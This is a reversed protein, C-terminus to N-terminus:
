KIKLRQSSDLVSALINQIAKQADDILAYFVPVALLTFFTATTMGGIIMFGFSEFSRGMAESSALTLPIMGFITTFATMVIPRFRHRTALLLAENRDMGGARLRNAYDVLVIGNNVVLGMLLIGGVIGMDDIGTGTYFHLWISGIAALPITLIISLPMLISEFLFAILMYIFIISLGMAILSTSIEDDDFTVKMESFSVGEPLDINRQAEYIARRAESEEGSELKMSIYYSIKKDSRQIHTESNLMAPKTIAGISSYRGDDSRVRYNNIDDLEARDEESFRMRVPIQRGNGSFDALSRGRLASSVVGAVAEPSIGMSSARDRNVMLAMENPGEDSDKDEVSLVGPLDAFAPKLMEGVEELQRPDDGVLRLHHRSKQDNRKEGGTDMGSYYVRVGPIEPFMKYLRDPVEDKPINGLGGEDSYNAEFEARTHKDFEVRYSSIGFQLKNTEVINEVEQFYADKQAITFHEPFRVRMHFEDRDDDRYGVVEIKKFGYFYTASLLVILIFALDLRRNLYFKLARNYLANFQEFTLKYFFLLGKKILAMVIHPGRLGRSIFTEDDSGSGATLYVCLPIFIIAMGLSALLASVVPLALQYLMFRMEGGVLLSPLFVIITTLTATTIALGIEGVGKICAARRSLGSQLHRNINEAVVVSNDVLLGVCIVLGLISTMNLTDGAFYMVTMSIFLALPIGLAIILTLRFQRLFFFLVFGAMIAGYLGNNTLSNLQRKIIEGYNQYLYLEYQALKPNKSIEDIAAAVKSGVEVTNAESEKVVEVRASRMKNWRETRQYTDDVEYKITAVDRLYVSDSLPINGLDQMSHFTSSSKLLYKKGGDTVTGSSLTFNDGRLRQSLRNISLGYAEARDKDLEIIIEKRYIRVNVDAVGDIRQLPRVIHKEVNNYLDTDDTYRVSMRCVSSSSGGYKYIRYDDVGDPFRLSAREMRDRVERYAVDMDTDRKFRLSVESSTQSARTDISEIGRVTSLEEEMPLGIKEMAEEPVGSSWGTRIRMYNGERGKPYKELPLRNVAIFGIALITLFLVFVTVKRNLSARTIETAIESTQM